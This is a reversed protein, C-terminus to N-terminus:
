SIEHLAKLSSDACQPALTLGGLLILILGLKSFEVLCLCAGALPDNPEKEGGKFVCRQCGQVHRSNQHLPLCAPFGPLTGPM